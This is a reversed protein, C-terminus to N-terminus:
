KKGIMRQKKKYELIAKKVELKEEKTKKFVQMGGVLPKNITEQNDM